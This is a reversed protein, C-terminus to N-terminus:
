KSYEPPTTSPSTTAPRTEVPHHILPPPGNLPQPGPPMLIIPAAIRLDPGHGATRAAGSQPVAPVALPGQPTPAPVATSRTLPTGAPLYSSVGGPALPGAATAGMRIESPLLGSQMIQYRQQSPLLPNQVSNQQGYPGPNASPYLPGVQTNIQYNVQWQGRALPPALLLVVLTLLLPFSHHANM